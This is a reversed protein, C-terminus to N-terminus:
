DATAQHKDVAVHTNTGSQTNKIKKSYELKNKIQFVKVWEITEYNVTSKSTFNETQTLKKSTCLNNM